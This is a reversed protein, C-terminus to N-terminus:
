GRPPVVPYELNPPGDGIERLEVLYSGLVDALRETVPGRGSEVPRLNARALSDRSTADKARFTLRNGGRM